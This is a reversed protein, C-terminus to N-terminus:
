NGKFVTASFYSHFIHYFVATHNLIIYIPDRKAWPFSDFPYCGPIFWPHRMGMAQQLV